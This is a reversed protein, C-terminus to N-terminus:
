LCQLFILIVAMANFNVCLVEETKVANDYVLRCQGTTVKMLVWSCVLLVRATRDALSGTRM